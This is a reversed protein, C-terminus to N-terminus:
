QVIASPEVLAASFLAIRFCSSSPLRMQQDAGMCHYFISNFEPVQPQGDDIFLVTKAHALPWVISCPRQVEWIRTIVAVGIGRVSAM